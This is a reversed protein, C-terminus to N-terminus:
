VQKKPDSDIFDKELKKMEDKEPLDDFIGMFLGLDVDKEKDQRTIRFPPTNEMDMNKKVEVKQNDTV